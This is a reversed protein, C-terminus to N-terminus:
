MPPWAAMMMNSTVARTVYLDTGWQCLSRVRTHSFMGMTSHPLLISQLSRLTVCCVCVVGQMACVGVPCTM